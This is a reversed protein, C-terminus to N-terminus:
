TWKKMAFYFEALESDYKKELTTELARGIYEIQAYRKHFSPLIYYRLWDCQFKKPDFDKPDLLFLIEDDFVKAVDIGSTDLLNRNVLDFFQRIRPRIEHEYRNEDQPGIQLMPNILSKYERILQNTRIVGESITIFYLQADKNNKLKTALRNRFERKKDSPLVKFVIPFNFQNRDLQYYDLNIERKFKPRKRRLIDIITIYSQNINQQSEFIELIEELDSAEILDQKKKLFRIFSTHNEESLGAHTIFPILNEYIGKLQERNFDFYAMVILIGNLHKSILDRFLTNEKLAAIFNKSGRPQTGLVTPINFSSKFFGNIQTLIKGVSAKSVQISDIENEVLTTVVEKHNSNEVILRFMFLNFEEIHPLGFIQHRRIEKFAKLYYGLTFTNISKGFSEAIPSFGNHLLFNHELFGKLLSVSDYLKGFVNSSHFGGRQIAKVTKPVKVFTEDIENCLRQIYIGEKIEKLFIYVDRDVFYKVKDLEQDLDIEDIEAQIREIEQWDIRDNFLENGLLWKLQTLNYKAMFSVEMRKLRNAKTVIAKLAQYSRYLDQLRYLGYFYVLDDWLSTRDDIHYEFVKKLALAYDYAKLTCDICECENETEINSHFDIEDKIPHGGTADMNTTRGITRIGSLAIRGLCYNLKRKEEDTFNPDDMGKYDAILQYLDQNFLKLSGNIVLYGPEQKSDKSIPYLSALTRQPLVRFYSFRQLSNYLEDITKSRLSDHDLSNRYSYVQFGSIYKLLSYVKAGTGSLKKTKPYDIIDGDNDRVL